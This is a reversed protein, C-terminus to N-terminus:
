DSENKTIIETEIKSNWFTSEMKNEYAKFRKAESKLYRKPHNFMQNLKLLNAEKQWSARMWELYYGSSSLFIEYGEISAKGSSDKLDPLEYTLKYASGPMNYLMKATDLLLNLLDPRDIEKQSVKSPQLEIPTVEKLIGTLAAYDIRWLGKNMVLKIRVDEDKTKQLLPVIQRNIAIPGTEFVSQQFEWNETKYNWIYIELAGLEKLLGSSLKNKQSNTTEVDAFFDSAWPGMYDLASYILYTTLLTQRFHLVLGLSNTDSPVNFRLEIEEKSSLNSPDTLSFREIRDDNVLLKTIEGEVGIANQLPYIGKCLLFANNAGHYVREGKNVPVALINLSKLCHTELAENKLTIELADRGVIVKNLADVDTYELSPSIANSFGEADAYHFNDTPNLYFTPCSGFCAKPNTLCIAALAADIGALLGLGALRAMEYDKLPRNTEFIAIDEVAVELKSDKVLVKRNYNYQSGYGTLVFTLTDLEWDTRFVYVDGNFMHAKLYPKLIASDIDYLLKTENNYSTRFNFPTKCSIFFLLGLVSLKMVLLNIKLISM